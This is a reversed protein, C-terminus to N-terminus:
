GIGIALNLQELRSVLYEWMWDAAVLVELTLFSDNRNRSHKMAKNEIHAEPHVDTLRDMESTKKSIVAVSAPLTRNKETQYYTIM